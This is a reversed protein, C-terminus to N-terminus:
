FGVQTCWKLALLKAAPLLTMCAPMLWKRNSSLQPIRRLHLLSTVCASCMRCDIRTTCATYLFVQSFENTNTNELLLM